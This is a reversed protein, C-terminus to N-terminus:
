LGISRYRINTLYSSVNTTFTKEVVIDREKMISDEKTKQQLNLLVQMEVFSAAEDRLEKVFDEILLILMEKSRFISATMPNLQSRGIDIGSYTLKQFLDLLVETQEYVNIANEYRLDVMDYRRYYNLDRDIATGDSLQVPISEYLNRHIGTGMLSDVGDAVPLLYEQLVLYFARFNNPEFPTKLESIDAITTADFVEAMVYQSWGSSITGLLPILHSKLQLEFTKSLALLTTNATSAGVYSSAILGLNTAIAALLANKVIDVVLRAAPQVTNCTFSMLVFCLIFCKKRVRLNM